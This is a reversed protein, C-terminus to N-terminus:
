HVESPGLASKVQDLLIEIQWPKELFPHASPEVDEWGMLFEPRFGSTLLVRPLRGEKKLRELLEAGTMSPMILDVILLDPPGEREIEELAELGNGAELVRYGQSRLIRATVRRLSDDDEVFLIKAGESEADEELGESTVPSRWDVLRFYLQVTTGEEPESEVQIYGRHQKMLGYVVAMSLGAGQGSLRASFFPQFLRAVTQPTMGVGTDRVTVVGYDGPDGWGSRSLHDHDFGGSGVRIELSGGGAMSDRANTALTLLMQEVAVPDALVPGVPEMSATVEVDRPILPRILRLADEVVEGLSVSQLRIREGQSVSLLHKIMQSSTTATRRIERLDHGMRERDESALGEELLDLHALIASLFDKLDIAMGGALQGLAVMSRAQRLHEELHRRGTVDRVWVRLSTGEPAEPEPSPCTEVELQVWLSTGDSRTWRVEEATLGSQLPPILAKRDAHDGFLHHIRPVAEQFDTLSDFALLEVLAENADLVRGEVSCRLWAENSSSPFLILDSESMRLSGNPGPDVLTNWPDQEKHLIGIAACNTLGM